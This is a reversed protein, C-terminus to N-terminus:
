ARLLGDVVWRGLLAFAAQVSDESIQQEEVQECIVCFPTKGAIKELFRQEHRDISRHLVARDRRWVVIAAPEPLVDGAGAEWWAIADHATPIVRLAAITQLELAAFAEPAMTQLTSWALPEGDAADFVELHARELRALDAAWSPTEIRRDGGALFNPLARGVERLSPETSPHALLYETVVDSFLADGLSVKLRPYDTGLAELIRFFYMNAYVDLRAVAEDDDGVVIEALRAPAVDAAALAQAVGEPARILEALWRQTTALTM